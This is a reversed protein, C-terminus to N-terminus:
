VQALAQDILIQVMWPMLRPLQIEHIGSTDSVCILQRLRPFAVAFLRMAEVAARQEDPTSAAVLAINNDVVVQTTRKTMDNALRVVAEDCAAQVATADTWDMGRTGVVVVENTDDPGPPLLDKPDDMLDFEIHARPNDSTLFDLQM